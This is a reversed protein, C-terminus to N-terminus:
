FDTLNFIILCVFLNYCVLWKEYVLLWEYDDKPYNTKMYEYAERPTHFM